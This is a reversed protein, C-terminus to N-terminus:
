SQSKIRKLYKVKRTNALEIEKRPTKITKKVFGNTLVAENNKTYFYLIRTINSSYKARLEFIDGSLHKAFKSPIDPGYMELLRITNVIKAQMHIEQSNIFDAIVNRGNEKIYWIVKM